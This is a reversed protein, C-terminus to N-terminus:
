RSSDEKTHCLLTDLRSGQMWLRCKIWVAMFGGPIKLPNEEQYGRPLIAGVEKQFVLVKTVCPCCSFLWEVNLRIGDELDAKGLLSSSLLTLTDRSREGEWRASIHELSCLMFGMSIVQTCVTSLTVALLKVTM